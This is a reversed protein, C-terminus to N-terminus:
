NIVDDSFASEGMEQEEADERSFHCFADAFCLFPHSLCSDIRGNEYVEM